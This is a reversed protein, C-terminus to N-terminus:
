TWADPKNKPAADRDQVSRFNRPTRMRSRPIRNVDDGLKKIGGSIGGATKSTLELLGATPKIVLGSVGIAVGKAFGTLGGNQYGRFPERVVGTTGEYLGLMFGHAGQVLSDGITNPRYRLRNLYEDNSTLVALGKGFGGALSGVSSVVGYASSKILSM